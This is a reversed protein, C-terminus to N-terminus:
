DKKLFQAPDDDDPLEKKGSEQGNRLTRRKAFPDYEKEQESKEDKKGLDELLEAVDAALEEKTSGQLRKAQKVTLGNEIALELRAKELELKEVNPSKEKLKDIEKQLKQTETLTKSEHEDVKTKLEDREATVTEVKNEFIISDKLLGYAFKKAKAPDIETGEAEWPAKWDEFKPLQKVM